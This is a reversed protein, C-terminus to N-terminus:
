FVYCAGIKIQHVNSKAQTTNFKILGCDYGAFIKVHHFYVGAAGGLSVNVRNYFNSGAGKFWNYTNTVTAASNTSIIETCVSSNTLWFNVTPGAAVFLQVTPSVNFAFQYKVPIDIYLRNSAQGSITKATGIKNSKLKGDFLANFRFAPCISSHESLRWEYGCEVYGGIFEDNDLGLLTGEVGARYINMSYGGGVSLGTPGGAYSLSAIALAILSFLIKKM